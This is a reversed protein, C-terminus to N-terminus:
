KAEEKTLMGNMLLAVVQEALNEPSKTGPLLYSVTLREIMGILCEAVTEMELESRFYGAQQESKLNEQILCVLEEKIQGSEPALFLGIRTLNPDAVLFRFVTEVAVLIRKSVDKPDIGPELRITETLKRLRSRFNQVLEEFVAEKSSFYLYFSPQTLKAKKVITSIKTEYFGRHAFEDAAAELLRRRSEQGKKGKEQAMDM